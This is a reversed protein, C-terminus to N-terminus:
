CRGCFYVRLPGRQNRQGFILPGLAGTALLVLSTPEPLSAGTTFSVFTNRHFRVFAGADSFSGTGTATLFFRSGDDYYSRYDTEFSLDLTYATNPHLTNAPIVASTQGGVLAITSNGVFISSGLPSSNFNVTFPQSPNMGQLGNFSDNTLYPVNPFDDPPMTLVGTGAPANSVTFTGQFGSPFDSRLANLSPYDGLAEIFSAPQNLPYTAKGTVTFTGALFRPADVLIVGVLAASTEISPQADNSVQSYGLSEDVGYLTIAAGAISDACALKMIAALLVVRQFVSM